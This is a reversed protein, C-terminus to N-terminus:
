EEHSVIRFIGRAQSDTPFNSLFSGIKPQSNPNKASMHRQLKQEYNFQTRIADAQLTGGSTFHENMDTFCHFM